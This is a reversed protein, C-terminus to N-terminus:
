DILNLVAKILDPNLITIHCQEQYVASSAADKLTAKLKDGSRIKKFLM